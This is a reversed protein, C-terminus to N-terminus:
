AGKYKVGCSDLSNKVSIEYLWVADHKDTDPLEVEICQRSAQWAEWKLNSALHHYRGDERRNLMIRRHFDSNTSSGIWFEFQERSTKM